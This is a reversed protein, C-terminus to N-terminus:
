TGCQMPGFLLHSLFICSRLLGDTCIPYLSADLLARFSRAVACPTAANPPQFPFSLLLFTASSLTHVVAMWGWRFVGEWVWAM